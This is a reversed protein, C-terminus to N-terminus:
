KYCELFLILWIFHSKLLASHNKIEINVHHNEIKQKKIIVTDCDITADAFVKERHQILNQL